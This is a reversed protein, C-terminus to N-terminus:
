PGPGPGGPQQDVDVQIDAYAGTAFLRDITEAVDKSSYPSGARLRQLAALDEAALPQQAPVYVVERVSKGELAGIRPESNQAFAPAVLLLISVM